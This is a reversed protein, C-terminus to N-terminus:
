IGRCARSSRKRPCIKRQVAKEQPHGNEKKSHISPTEKNTEFHLGLLTLLYEGQHPHTLDDHITSLLYEPKTNMVGCPRRAPVSFYAYFIRAFGYCQRM